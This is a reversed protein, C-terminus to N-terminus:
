NKSKFLSRAGINLVLVAVTVLLAGGWALKELPEFISDAMLRNIATPLSHMTNSLNWSTVNNGFATFLLPATEGSIRAIALIVGTIIGSQSARLVIALTTKWQPAGLAAAAERLTSPVLQMMNETTRVVVPIVLIALAFTGAWGSYGKDWFPGSSKVFIAYIFLGIIISPASLLIDVIFRTSNALWNNKGFESLYIGAFVGIPTGILTGASVMVLSGVIANLLGGGEDGPPAPMTQTYFALNALSSAGKTIISYLIAFLCALGLAM